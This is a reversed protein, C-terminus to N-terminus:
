AAEAQMAVFVDITDEAFWDFRPREGPWVQTRVLYHHSLGEATESIQRKVIEGKPTGWSTRVKHGVPYKMSRIDTHPTTNM